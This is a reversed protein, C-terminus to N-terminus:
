RHGHRGARRPREAREAAEARAEAATARRAAEDAETRADSLVALLRDAEERGPVAEREERSSAPLPDAPAAAAGRAKSRRPRPLDVVIGRGVELEAGPLRPM